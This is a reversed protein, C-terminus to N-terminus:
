FVREPVYVVDGAQLCVDGKVNGKAGVARLDVNFHKGKGKGNERSIRIGTLKASTSLGGALQIAMSLSLDQTPPINIRGPEKVRGLVTVYGWPSVSGASEDVVFDVDVLPKHLYERYLVTLVVSLQEMTLESVKVTGVLPLTITGAASVRRAPEEVEPRGSASVIVKVVLGPRLQPSEVVKEKEDKTKDKGRLRGFFGRKKKPKAKAAEKVKAERIEKVRRSRMDERKKKLKAKEVEKAKAERVEKARRLERASAASKQKGESAKASSPGRVESKQSSVQVPKIEPHTGACGSVVVSLVVLAVIRAWQGCFRSYKRRNVLRLRVCIWQVEDIKGETRERHGGQGGRSATLETLSEKRLGCNMRAKRIREGACM